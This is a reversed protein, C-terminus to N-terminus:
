SDQIPTLPMKGGYIDPLQTEDIDELLTETLKKNEVFVIKKKTNTDIFPYVVKWATMFIYPAHVIYLKGLREPYCDQLTSLAALYGRIDCNSYGWGQLDGISIFKEVGKPMRACIKELTYVVFRKFEDPNGKSPNHRNGFSVVIPRGMKDHGQMCVKKHSLENGIESEPICGKPLFSKKWALYKLFLTSAKEIDMDRARLFRRMMLDDVEKTSPDQRDCLARMIGVKSREIEDEILIGNEQEAGAVSEVVHKQTEKKEM